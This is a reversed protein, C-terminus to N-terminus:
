RKNARIEAGFDRLMAAGTPSTGVFALACHGPVAESCAPFALLQLPQGFVAAQELVGFPGKPSTGEFALACQGPVAESWAPLASPHLPQGFAAAQALAGFPGSGSRSCMAARSLVTLCLTSTSDPLPPTPFLVNEACSANASAACPFSTPSISTSMQPGDMGLISPISPSSIWWLLMPHDGTYTCSLRPTIDMWNMSCLGSSATTHRPGRLFPRMLCNM